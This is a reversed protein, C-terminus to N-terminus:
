AAGKSQSIESMDRHTNSHHRPNKRNSLDQEPPKTGIEFATKGKSRIMKFREAKTLEDKEVKVASKYRSQNRLESHSSEKYKPSLNDEFDSEEEDIVSGLIWKSKDDRSKTAPNNRDLHGNESSMNESFAIAPMQVKQTFNTDQVTSKDERSSCDAKVVPYKIQKSSSHKLSLAGKSQEQKESNQLNSLISPPSEDRDRGNTPVRKLGILENSGSDSTQKKNQISEKSIGEYSEYNQQLQSHPVLKKAVVRSSSNKKLMKPPGIKVKQPNSPVNSPSEISDGLKVPSFSVSLKNSMPYSGGNRSGSEIIQLERGHIEEIQVFGLVSGSPRCAKRKNENEYDVPVTTLLITVKKSCM